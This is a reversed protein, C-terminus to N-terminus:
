TVFNEKIYKMVDAYEVKFKDIYDKWFDPSDDTESEDPVEMTEKKPRFINCNPCSEM